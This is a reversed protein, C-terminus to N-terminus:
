GITLTLKKEEEALIAILRPLSDTEQRRLRHEDVQITARLAVQSAGLQVRATTKWVELEDKSDIDAAQPLPLDILEELKLLAKRTVRGLV